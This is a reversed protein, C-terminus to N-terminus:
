RSIIVLGLLIVVTGLIKNLTLGENFLFASLLIVTVFSLSTFPYAFSLEFQTLVAMWALSALFAAALGSLVWPNLLLRVFFAIKDGSDAPFAGAGSVQSKIILQGYVTFLITLAIYVYGM